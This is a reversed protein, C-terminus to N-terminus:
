ENAAATGAAKRKYEYTVVEKQMRYGNYELETQKGVTKVMFVRTKISGNNVM